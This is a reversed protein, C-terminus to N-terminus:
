GSSPIAKWRSYKAKKVQFDLVLVMSCIVAFIALCLVLLIPSTVVVQWLMDVKAFSLQHEDVPALKSTM